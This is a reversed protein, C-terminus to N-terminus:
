YIHDEETLILGRTEFKVNMWAGDIRRCNITLDEEKKSYEKCEGISLERGGRILKLGVQYEEIM